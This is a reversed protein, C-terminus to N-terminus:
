KPALAERLQVGYQNNHQSIHKCIVVVVVVLLDKYKRGLFFFHQFVLFISDIM